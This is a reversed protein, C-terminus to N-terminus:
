CKTPWNSFVWNNQTSFDQGRGDWQVRRAEFKPGPKPRARAQTPREHTKYHLIALFPIEPQARALIKKTPQLIEAWARGTLGTALGPRTPSFISLDLGQNPKVPLARRSGGARRM